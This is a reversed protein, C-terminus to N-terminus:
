TAVAPREGASIEIGIRPMRLRCRFAAVSVERRDAPLNRDRIKAEKSQAAVQRPPQPTRHVNEKWDAKAIPDGDRQVPQPAYKVNWRPELSIV